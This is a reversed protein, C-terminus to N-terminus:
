DFPRPPKIGPISRLLSDEILFLIRLEHLEAKKNKISFGPSDGGFSGTFTLEYEANEPADSPFGAAIMCIQTEGPNGFITFKYTPSHGNTPFLTDGNFAVILFDPSVGIPTTSITIVEGNNVILRDGVQRM